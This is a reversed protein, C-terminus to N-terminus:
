TGLGRYDATISHMSSTRDLRKTATVAICQGARELSSLYRVGKVVDLVYRLICRVTLGITLVTPPLPTASAEERQAVLRAASLSMPTAKALM